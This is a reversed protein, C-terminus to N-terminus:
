ILISVVAEKKINMSLDVARMGGVPSFLPQSGLEMGHTGQLRIVPKEKQEITLTRKDESLKVEAETHAIVPLILRAGPVECQLFVTFSKETMEYKMQWSAGAVNEDSVLHGRVTVCLSDGEEWTMVTEKDNCSRYRAGKEIWELRPTLCAAQGKRLLQMNNPEVLRYNGMTGICVPGVKRHWLMSIAGGSPHGWPLYEVDYGTVTARWDGKGLLLVQMDPFFRAGERRDGPLSATATSTNCIELQELTAHMLFQALGRAHCFTHHVCPPEGAERFMPGGYLLGQFTCADLLRLNRRAAELFEPDEVFGYGAVCGDSTRGGWYSWKYNRTGFSNDWAGDPLMFELHTRLAKEALKWAQEDQELRAYQLLAPLSEEVNYGVDMPRCGKPSVAKWDHGEGYLIGDETFYPTIKDVLYRATQRYSEEGTLKHAIAMTFTCSVPYNVNGGIEDVHEQLWRACSEFRARIKERDKEELCDGFDLLCEGLGAASFVTIGKWDSDADNYFYGEEHFMNDSWAFLRLACDRYKEDGTQRYRYLMPYMADSCRGHIRGCAPCLIGGYLEKEKCETIQLEVLRDCWKALLNECFSIEM